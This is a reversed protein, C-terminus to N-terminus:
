EMKELILRIEEPNYGWPGMQGKYIVKGEQLVYLRDPLAAYKVKCQNEMTDLVVPCFPQEELLREAADLRDQISQHKKIYVNNKIAWGDAAHAEDIYIILFDAM